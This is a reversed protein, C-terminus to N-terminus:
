VRYRTQIAKVKGDFDEDVVMVWQLLQDPSKVFFNMSPIMLMFFTRVTM